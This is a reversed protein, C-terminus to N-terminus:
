SKEFVIVILPDLVPYKTRDSAYVFEYFWMGTVNDALWKQIELPLWTAPVLTGQEHWWECDDNRPKGSTYVAAMNGKADRDWHDLHLPRDPTERYFYNICNHLSIPTPLPRVLM